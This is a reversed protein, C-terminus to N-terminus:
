VNGRDRIHRQTPRTFSGGGRESWRVGRRPSRGRDAVRARSSADKAEPRAVPRLRPYRRVTRERTPTSTRRLTQVDRMWRDGPAMDGASSRTASSAAIRPAVSGGVGGSAICLFVTDRSALTVDPLDGAREGCGLAHSADNTLVGAGVSSSAADNRADEERSRASRTLLSFCACMSALASSRDSMASAAASASTSPSANEPFSPSTGPGPAETRTASGGGRSAM